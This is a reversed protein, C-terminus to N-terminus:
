WTPAPQSNPPASFRLDIGISSPLESDRRPISSRLPEEQEPFAGLVAELNELMLRLSQIARENAEIMQRLETLEDKQIPVGQM